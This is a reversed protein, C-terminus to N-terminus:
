GHGTVAGRHFALPFPPPPMSPTGEGHQPEGHRLNWRRLGAGITFPTTAAM